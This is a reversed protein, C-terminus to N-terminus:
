AFYSTSFASPYLTKRERKKIKKIPKSHNSYTLEHSVMNKEYILQIGQIGQQILTM